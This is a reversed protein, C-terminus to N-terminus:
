PKPLEPYRKALRYVAGVIWGILFFALVYSAATAPLFVNGFLVPSGLYLILFAIGSLVIAGILGYIAAFLTEKFSRHFQKNTVWFYLISFVIATLIFLSM